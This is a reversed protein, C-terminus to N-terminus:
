GLMGGLKKLQADLQRGYEDGAGSAKVMAGMTDLLQLAATGIAAPDGAAVANSFEAQAHGAAETYRAFDADGARTLSRMAAVTTEAFQALGAGFKPDLGRVIGGGTSAKSLIETKGEVVGVRASYERVTALEQEVYALRAGHGGLDYTGGKYAQFDNSLTTLTSGFQAISGNVTAFKGDLGAAVAKLQTATAQAEAIAATAAPLANGVNRTNRVAAVRGTAIVKKTSDVTLVLTDSPSFVGSPQYGPLKEAEAATLVQVDPVGNGKTVFDTVKKKVDDGIQGLYHGVGLIGDGFAELPELEYLEQLNLRTLVQPYWIPTLKQLYLKQWQAPFQRPPYITYCKSGKPCKTPEPLDGAPTPTTVPEPPAYGAIIAEVDDRYAGAPDTCTGGLMAETFGRPPEWAHRYACDFVWAGGVQHVWGLVVGPRTTTRNGTLRLLTLIRVLDLVAFLLTNLWGCKYGQVGPLDAPAIATASLKDILAPAILPQTGNTLRKVVAKRLDDFSNVPKSDTSLRIPEVELLDEDEFDMHIGTIRGAVTRLWASRTHLEAHGACDAEGCDPAPQVTDSAELVVSFGEVGTDIFDYSPTAASLPLPLAQATTLLLPEGTQDVAAGPQITLTTAAVAGGLGWNIGFGVTGGVLRDREHLFARLVNLDAATLTQGGEFVPYQNDSM